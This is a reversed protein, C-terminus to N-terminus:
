TPSGKRQMPQMSHTATQGVPTNMALYFQVTDNHARNKKVVEEVRRLDRRDQEPHNGLHRREAMSGVTDNADKILGSIKADNAAAATSNATATTATIAVCLVAALFLLKTNM